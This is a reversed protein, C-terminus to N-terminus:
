EPKKRRAAIRFVALGVAAALMMAAAFLIPAAASGAADRAMGALAPFVGMVVYYVTYFVGMGPARSEPRLASAALTMIPGAPLGVVLLLFLYPLAPNAAAAMAAAAIAAAMFSAMIVLQTRGTRDALLGGVPITAMLMWGLMSALGAAAALTFGREVFLSPVFSVLVIYGVNFAGWIWGGISVLMWERSTLNLTLHAAQPEPTGPPDRYVVAIAILAVFCVLAAAHMVAQWGLWEGFPAFALLGLALGLPWSTVLIAMATGIERGAFWDAVMKTMLVNMLVAGTGSLLRGVSLSAFSTSLGMIVGGVVMLGVGALVVTKTGFRAGLVGGPLAIFVGPFMYLGILTGLAAYDIALADVLAPATSGVTQFQFGMATRALFLLALITWRNRAM